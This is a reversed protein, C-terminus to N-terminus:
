KDSASAILGIAALGIPLFLLSIGISSLGSLSHGKVLSVLDPFTMFLFVALGFVFGITGGRARNVDTLAVIWAVVVACFGTLVATALTVFRGWGNQDPIMPGPYAPDHTLRWILFTLAGCLLGYCVGLVICILGRLALKYYM